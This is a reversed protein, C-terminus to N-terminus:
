VHGEFGHGGAADEEAAADGHLEQGVDLADGEKVGEVVFAAEAGEEFVSGDEHDEVVLGGEEAGGEAGGQRESRLEFTTPSDIKVDYKTTHGDGGNGGAVGGDAEMRSGSADTFTGASLVRISGGDSVTSAEGDAQILSNAGLSVTDSAVLEIVGNREIYVTGKPESGDAKEARRLCELVEDVSNGRGATVGLMTSLLYRPGEEM